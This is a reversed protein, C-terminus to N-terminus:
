PDKKTHFIKTNIIASQYKLDNPIKENQYKSGRFIQCDQKPFENWFMSLLQYIGFSLQISQYRSNFFGFKTCLANFYILLHTCLLMRVYPICTELYKKRPQFCPQWIKGPVHYWFRLFTGSPCPMYWITMFYGLHGYFTAVNKWRLGELIEV